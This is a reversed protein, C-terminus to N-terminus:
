KNIMKVILNIGFLIAVVAIVATAVATVNTTADGQAATIAATHDAAFVTASAFASSGVLALKTTLNKM